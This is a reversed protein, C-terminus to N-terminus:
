QFAKFTAAMAKGTGDVHAAQAISALMKTMVPRYQFTQLDDDLSRREPALVSVSPLYKHLNISIQLYTHINVSTKIVQAELMAWAATGGDAHWCQLAVSVSRASTDLVATPM